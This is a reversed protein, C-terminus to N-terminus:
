VEMRAKLSKENKLEFFSRYYLNEFVHKFTFEDKFLINIFPIFNIFNIDQTNKPQYNM